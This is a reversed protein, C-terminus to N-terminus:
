RLNWANLKKDITITICDLNKDGNIDAFAPIGYGVLPFGSILELNETFGYLTNADPCIFIGANDKRFNKAVSIYGNKATHEPIKVCTFSGDTAIKYLTADSGLAYFYNNSAVVNTNFINHLKIIKDTAPIGNEWLYLTGNQTIFATYISQDKQLMAPAGFAIGDVLEAEDPNKCIGNEIFYIEGIFGKYYLAFNNGLAQPAAKLNGMPELEITSINANQDVVLINGSELPVLLNNETATIIGTTKEECLLPFNKIPNLKSDFLYIVGNKSVAWLAGNNQLKKPAAQITSSEPMKYSSIKTSSVELAKIIQSDELWYVTNPSSSKESHLTYDSKVDEELPIPFGPIARLDGSNRAIAQLQFSIASDEIRLDFRGISYLKLVESLESQGRLFFPVSHEM